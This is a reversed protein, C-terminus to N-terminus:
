FAGLRHLQCLLFGLFRFLLDLVVVVLLLGPHGLGLLYSSRRRWLVCFSRRGEGRGGTM